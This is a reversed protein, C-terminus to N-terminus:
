QMLTSIGKDIDRWAVPFERPWNSSKIPAYKRMEYKRSNPFFYYSNMTGDEWGKLKETDVHYGRMRNIYGTFTSYFTGFFVRGRSAVLQDVMGFYNTNLGELLHKFDDLFVIDYHERLPQFFNKDQEDTAIYVLSKETIKDMSAKYLVTANVKVNKYQFDGRRIHFSDFLGEKNNPDQTAARLRLENVIRAAACQIEDLYRLHDRVFRYGWLQQKWDQFYLFAYFHILMRVEEKHNCMYHLVPANQLEKDYICVERRRALIQAMRDEPNGDVNAIDSPNLFGNKEKMYAEPDSLIRKHTEKIQEIDSEHTSAPFAALCKSPSWM